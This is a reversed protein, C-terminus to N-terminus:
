WGEERSVRQVLSQRSPGFAFRGACNFRPAESGPARRTRAQRRGGDRGDPHGPGVGGVKEITIRTLYGPRLTPRRSIPAELSFQRTSSRSCNLCAATEVRAAGQDVFVTYIARRDTSVFTLATRPDRRINRIKQHEQLHATVLEDDGSATSQLVM